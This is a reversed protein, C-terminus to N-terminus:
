IFLTEISFIKLTMKLSTNLTLNIDIVYQKGFSIKFEFLIFLPIKEDSQISPLLTKTIKIKSFIHLQMFQM